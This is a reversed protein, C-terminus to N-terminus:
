SRHKRPKTLLNRRGSGDGFTIAFANLAPEWRMAWRIRGTGTPDLSRSVLGLCKLAAQETPFHDCAKVARRYWANANQRLLIIGTSSAGGSPWTIPRYDANVECDFRVRMCEDGCGTAHCWNASAGSSMTM